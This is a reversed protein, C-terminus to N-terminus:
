VRLRLVAPMGPQLQPAAPRHLFTRIVAANVHRLEAEAISGRFTASRVVVHSLHAPEIDIQEPRFCRAYDLKEDLWLEAEEPTFWNGPGLCEMVERSPPNAYAEATLGSHLIGGDRLCIVHAAEGLVAEPSRTSFVLSRDEASLAARLAAWWRVAHAPEAHAFPEDLVLAKAPSALARTVSLRSRESEDLAPPKADARDALDFSALLEDIRAAECRLLALHERVTCHPWLGHNQPAWAVSRPSDFIGRAPKEFGALVNLLSTKGAGCPGFVATVGRPISVSVDLLRAVGLCVHDLTWLPADTSIVGRM